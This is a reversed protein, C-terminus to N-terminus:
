ASCARVASHIRNLSANLSAVAKWNDKNADMSRWTNTEEIELEALEARHHDHIVETTSRRLARYSARVAVSTSM